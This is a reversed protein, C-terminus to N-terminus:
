KGLMRFEVRRNRSRGEETKNDGLPRTDGYGAAVLQDSPVGTYILFDRVVSARRQSLAMNHTPSGTADAHGAVEAVVGKQAKLSASVSNLLLYAEPTLHDSDLEFHIHQLVVDQIKVCGKEDVPYGAVTHPCEDLRDPVGDGDSDRDPPPEPAPPPPPPLECGKEDVATGAPTNPCCDKTNDVGDGDSDPTCGNADPRVWRPTDPCQDLEDPVGDEDSDVPPPPPPPPPPVAAAQQIEPEAAPQRGFPFLFGLNFRSDEAFSQATTQGPHIVEDNFVVNYRGELRWLEGFFSFPLYYGLGANAYGSNGKYGTAASGSRRATRLEERIVGGGIMFIPNGPAPTGLALDLGAGYSYEKLRDSERQSETGFANLELALSDDLVFGLIAHLNLGYESDRPSDPLVYGGLVGVYWSPLADSEGAEDQARLGVPSVLLITLLTNLCARRLAGSNVHKM